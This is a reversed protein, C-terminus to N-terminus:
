VFISMVENAMLMGKRTLRLRGDENLLLGARSYYTLRPGFREWVDVGYRASVAAVDLGRSLRLGTFLADGLREEHSLRRRDVSVDEDRAIKEVYDETSSVNRWREGGYTSHAGPGFGIWEGDSWYKLNHASERGPKCVNSIEYQTYGANELASM